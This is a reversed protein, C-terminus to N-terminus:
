SDIHEVEVDSMDNFLDNDSDSVCNIVNSSIIIENMASILDDEDYYEGAVICKVIDRLERVDSSLNRRFGDMSFKM